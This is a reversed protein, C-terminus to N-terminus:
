ADKKDRKDLCGSTSCAMASSFRLILLGVVLCGAGWMSLHRAGSLFPLDIMRMRELLLTAGGLIAIPGLIGALTKM